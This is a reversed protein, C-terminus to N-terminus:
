PLLLELMHLLLLHLLLLHLLPHLMTTWPKVWWLLYHTQLVPHWHWALKSWVHSSPGPGHTGHLLHHVLHSTLGHDPLLHTHTGPHWAHWAVRCDSCSEPEVDRWLLHARPSWSCGVRGQGRRGEGWATIM